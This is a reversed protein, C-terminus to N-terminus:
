KVFTRDKIIRISYGNFSNAIAITKRAKKQIGGVKLGPNVKHLHRGIVQLIHKDGGQIRGIVTIRCMFMLKVTIIGIEVLGSKLSTQGNHDPTNLMPLNQLLM